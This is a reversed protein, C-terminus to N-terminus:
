EEGQADMKAGCEPCYKARPKFRKQPRHGCKNCIYYKEHYAPNMDSEDLTCNFYDLDIYGGFVWEGHVVPAVDAPPLDELRKKCNDRDALTINGNAQEVADIVDQKRIYEDAM